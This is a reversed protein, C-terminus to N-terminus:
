LTADFIKILRPAIRRGIWHALVCVPIGLGVFILCLVTLKGSTFTLHPAVLHLLTSAFLFHGAYIFFSAPMVWTQIWRASLLRTLPEAVTWFLPITLLLFVTRVTPHVPGVFEQMAFLGVMAALSVALCPWRFRRFFAFVNFSYTAAGGGTIFAALAYAPYTMLTAEAQQPFLATGGILLVVVGGLAWVPVKRFFWAFVPAFLAFVFLTRVFWLPGDIPHVTLSAVKEVCGTFTDLGFQNVRLALRPVVSSFVLYVVVFLANWALYPVALRKVRSWIKRGYAANTYNRFLLYGSLFFLTPLLVPALGGCLFSWVGYEVGQRPVYQFAASAHLLVVLLNCFLRVADITQSRSDM